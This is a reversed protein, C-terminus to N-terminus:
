QYYLPYSITVQWDERVQMYEMGTCVLVPRALAFLILQLTESSVISSFLFFFSVLFTANNRQKKSPASSFKNRNLEENKEHLIVLISVLLAFLPALLPCRM